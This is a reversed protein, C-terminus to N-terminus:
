QITETEAAHSRGPTDRGRIFGRSGIPEGRPRDAGSDDRKRVDGEIQDQDSCDPLVNTKTSYAREKADQVLRQARKLYSTDIDM